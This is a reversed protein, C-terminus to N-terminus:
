LLPFLAIPQAARMTFREVLDAQEKKGRFWKKLNHIQATFTTHTFITIM